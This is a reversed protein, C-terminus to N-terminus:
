PVLNWIIGHTKGATDVAWGTVNGNADVGTARSTIFGAPLTLHLDRQSFDALNWVVAHTYQTTGARNKGMGFGCVLNGRIGTAQATGLPLDAPVYGLTILSNASGQWVAAYNMLVQFNRHTENFLKMSIGVTGVQRVGDTAVAMSTDYAKPHLNVFGRKAGFWLRAELSSGKSEYGVQTGHACGLAVVPKGDFLDVVVGGTTADWVIAHQPGQSQVDRIVDLQTATGVIQTGDTFVGTSSYVAFPDALPQAVGGVWRLAVSHGPRNGDFGTGVFLGNFTSNIASTGARTPANLFSPHADTANGLLDWFTAHGAVAGGVNGEGIGYAFSNPGLDTPVYSQASAFTGGLLAFALILTTKM